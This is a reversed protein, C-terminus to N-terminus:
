QVIPANRNKSFFQFFKSVPHCLYFFQTGLTHWETLFSISKTVPCLNRQVKNQFEELNEERQFNSWVCLISALFILCQLINRSNLRCCPYTCILAHLKWWLALLTKMEDNFQCEHFHFSFSVFFSITLTSFWKCDCIELLKVYNGLMFNIEHFWNCCWFYSWTILIPASM